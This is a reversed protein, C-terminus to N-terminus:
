YLMLTLVILRYTVWGISAIWPIGILKMRRAHEFLMGAVVLMFFSAYILPNTITLLDAIEMFVLLLLSAFFSITMMNGLYEHVKDKAIFRIVVAQFIIQGGCIIFERYFKSAPILGTLLHSYRTLIISSIVWTFVIYVWRYKINLDPTCTDEKSNGPIIVKRNYSIFFYLRKMIWYFPSFSFLKKFVPYSNVVVKFISDIGYSVEGTNTNVLAIENRARKKDILSCTQNSMDQYSERGNKDLMGAKVFADSYTKCIPCEADFILVYNKM